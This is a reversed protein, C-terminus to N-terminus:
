IEAIAHALNEVIYAIKEPSLEAYMPLSLIRSMGRAAVPFDAATHGLYRYASLLPLAIPYHIGTAIGKEALIEQIHERNPVQV